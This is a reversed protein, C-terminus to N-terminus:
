MQFFHVYEHSTYINEQVKMKHYSPHVEVLQVLKLYEMLKARQDQKSTPILRRIQQLENTYALLRLTQPLRTLIPLRWRTQAKFQAIQKTLIKFEYNMDHELQEWKAYGDLRRLEEPVESPKETVPWQIPDVRGSNERQANQSIQDSVGPVSSKPSLPNDSNMTVRHVGTTAAPVPNGEEAHDTARSSELSGPPKNECGKPVEHPSTEKVPWTITEIQGTKDAQTAQSDSIQSTGPTSSKPSLPNHSSMASRDVAMTAVPVEEAENVAHSLGVPGPQAMSNAAKVYYLILLTLRQRMAHLTKAFAFFIQTSLLPLALQSTSTALRIRGADGHAFVSQIERVQTPM